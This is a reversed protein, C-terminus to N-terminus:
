VTKILAVSLPECDVSINADANIIDLKEQLERQHIELLGKDMKVLREISQREPNDLPLLEIIDERNKIRKRVNEIRINYFERTQAENHIRESEAQRKLEEKRTNRELTSAEVFSLKMDNVIEPSYLSESPNYEKGNVQSIGFLSNIITDDTVLQRKKIDFVFPQLTESKKQVGQFSRSTVFQYIGM